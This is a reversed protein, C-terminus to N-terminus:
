NSRSGPRHLWTLKPLFPSPQHYQPRLLVSARRFAGSVGLPSMIAKVLSKLSVMCARAWRSGANRLAQQLFADFAQEGTIDIGALRHQAVIDVRRDPEILQGPNEVLRALAEHAHEPGFSVGLRTIQKRHDTIQLLLFAYGQFNFGPLHGLIGHPLM